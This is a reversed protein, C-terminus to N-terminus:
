NTVSDGATCSENYVLGDFCIFVGRQLALVVASGMLSNDGPVSNKLLFIDALLMDIDLPGM